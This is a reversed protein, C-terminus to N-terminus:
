IIITFINRNHLSKCLDLFTQSLQLTYNIGTIDSICLWCKQNSLYTINWKSDLETYPFFGFIAEVNPWTVTNLATNVSGASWDQMCQLANCSTPCSIASWSSPDTGSGCLSEYISLKNLARHAAAAVICCGSELWTM